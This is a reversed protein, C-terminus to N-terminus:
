FCRSVSGTDFLHKNFSNKTRIHLLHFLLISWPLLYLTAPNQNQALNMSCNSSAWFPEACNRTKCWSKNWLLGQLQLMVHCGQWDLVQCSGPLAMGGGERATHRIHGAATEFETIAHGWPSGTWSASVVLISGEFFASFNRLLAKQYILYSPWSGRTAANNLWHLVLCHPLICGREAATEGKSYCQVVCQIYSIEERNALRLLM